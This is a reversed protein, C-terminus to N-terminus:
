RIYCWSVNWARTPGHLPLPNPLGLVQSGTFNIPQDNNLVMSKKTKTGCTNGKYSLPLCYEFYSDCAGCTMDFDCCEETTFTNNFRCISCRNSPNYYNYINVELIFDGEVKLHILLINLISLMVVSSLLVKHVSFVSLLLMPVSSMM